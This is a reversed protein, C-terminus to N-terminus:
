PTGDKGGATIDKTAAEVMPNQEPKPQDATEGETTTLGYISSFLDILPMRIAELTQTFVGDKFSNKVRNVKYVGTVTENDKLVIRGSGDVDTPYKFRLIFCNAGYCHTAVHERNEVTNQKISKQHNLAEEYSGWGIWFPDGRVQVEVQQFRGTTVGYVQNLIAGYLQRGTHWQGTGGYGSEQKAEDAGGFSIPVLPMRSNTVENANAGGDRRRDMLDEIFQRQYDQEAAKNIDNGFIEKAQTEAQKREGAAEKRAKERQELMKMLEGRQRILESHEASDHGPDEDVHTRDHAQARQRWEAYQRDFNADIQDLLAMPNVTTHQLAQDHYYNEFRPLNISWAFNFNLDFNLVETNLGTFLYDYRKPLFGRKALASLTKKQVGPGKEKDFADSIQRRSLIPEQDIRPYIHWVITRGYRNTYFDYKREGTKDFRIEPLCQWTVCERFGKSNVIDDSEDIAKKDGYADRALHQATESVAMLGSIIEPIATGRPVSATPIDPADAPAAEASEDPTGDAKTPNKTPDVIMFSQQTRINSWDQNQPRLAMKEFVEAAIGDAAIQEKLDADVAEKMKQKEQESIESKQNGINGWLAKVANENRDRPKEGEATPNSAPIGHIVFKHEIFGEADDPLVLRRKWAANVGRELEGLFEGVTNGRITMTDPVHTWESDLAKQSMPLMSLKYEGGGTNLNVEIDNIQVTWLWRGGNPLETFPNLDIHGAEDYGKFSLELYYFFDMYNFIGAEKAAERLADLFSVGGPELVKMTIETFQSARSTSDNMVSAMEVDTINYGTVGSQAITVQKYQDLNKYFEKIDLGDGQQDYFFDKDPMCFLRWHYTLNNYKNALNGQFHDGSMISNVVAEEDWSQVLQPRNTIAGGKAGKDTEGQAPTTSKAPTPAATKDGAAPAAATKTAPAAPAPATPAKTGPQTVQAAKPPQRPPTTM